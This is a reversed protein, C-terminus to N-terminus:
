AGSHIMAKFQREAETYLQIKHGLHEIMKNYAGSM